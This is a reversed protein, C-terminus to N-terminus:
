IENSWQELQLFQEEMTELNPKNMNSAKKNWYNDWYEDSDPEVPKEPNVALYNRCLRWLYLAADSYHDHAGRRVEYRGKELKLADWVLSKWETILGQCESNIVKITGNKMDSNFIDIVQKKTTNKLEGGSKQPAEIRLQYRKSFTEVAQKPADMVIKTFHYKRDLERIRADLQDYTWKEHKEASIVYLHPDFQSYCGVVLTTADDYGTDSGLYFSYNDVKMLLKPLEKVDNILSTYKYVLDNASLVWEGYWEKRFDEDDVINPNEAVKDAITQRIADRVVPNQDWSWFYSSWRAGKIHRNDKNLGCTVDYFLGMPNEPTGDMIITGHKGHGIMAPELGKEVIDKVSYRYKSAEDLVALIYYVGVFKKLEEPNVDVGHFVIQSGNAFHWCNETYTMGLQPYKKSLPKFGHQNFTEQVTKASVGLFLIKSNPYRHATLIGTLAMSHSKGTRRTGLIAKLFCPDLFMERQYDFFEGLLAQSLAAREKTAIVIDVIRSKDM